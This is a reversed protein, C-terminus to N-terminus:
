EPEERMMEGHAVTLLPAPFEEALIAVIENRVLRALGVDGADECATIIREAAREHNQTM